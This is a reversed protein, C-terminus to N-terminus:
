IDNRAIEEEVTPCADRRDRDNGRVRSVMKKKKDGGGQQPPLILPPTFREDQIKNKARL